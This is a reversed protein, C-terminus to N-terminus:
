EVLGQRKRWKCQDRLFVMESRDELTGTFHSGEVSEDDKYLRKYPGKRPLLEFIGSKM